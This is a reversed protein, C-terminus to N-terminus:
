ILKIKKIIRKLGRGFVEPEIEIHRNEGEGYSVSKVTSISKLTEHIVFREYNSMHQLVVTKRTEVAENAKKQAFKKLNGVPYVRMEYVDDAVRYTKTVIESNHDFQRHIQKREFANLEPIVIPEISDALERKIRRVLNDIKGDRDNRGNKEKRDNFKNNKRFPPRQRKEM